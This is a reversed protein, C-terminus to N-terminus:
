GIWRPPPSCGTGEGDSESYVQCQGQWYLSLPHPRQKITLRYNKGLVEDLLGKYGLERQNVLGFLLKSFLQMM